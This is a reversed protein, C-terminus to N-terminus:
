VGIRERARALCSVPFKRLGVCVVDVRTVIQQLSQNMLGSVPGFGGSVFGAVDPILFSGATDLLSTDCCNM